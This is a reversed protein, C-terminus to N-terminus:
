GRTLASPKTTLSRSGATPSSPRSKPVASTSVSSCIGPSPNKRHAAKRRGPQRPWLIKVTPTRSSPGYRRQCTRVQFPPLATANPKAADVAAKMDLLCTIMSKAWTRHHEEHVFTRERLPHANCRGHECPYGFYPKGFDHIARGLFGPVIDLANIAETGRKPHIDDTTAHATSTAHVWWLNKDVRSGSEDFHVVPAQARQAKIQLATEM